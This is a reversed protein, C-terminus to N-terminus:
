KESINDYDVIREFNRLIKLDNKILSIPLLLIKGIRNMCERNERFYFRAMYGVFAIFAM